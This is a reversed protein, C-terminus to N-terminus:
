KFIKTQATWANYAIHCNSCTCSFTEGHLIREMCSLPRNEMVSFKGIKKMKRYLKREGGKKTRMIWLAHMLLLMCFEEAVCKRRECTFTGISYNHVTHQVSHTKDCSPWLINTLHSKQSSFQLFLFFMKEEITLRCSFANVTKHQHIKYLVDGLFIGWM